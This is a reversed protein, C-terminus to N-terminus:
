LPALVLGITSLCSRIAICIIHRELVEIVIVLLSM